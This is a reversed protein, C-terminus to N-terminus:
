SNEKENALPPLTLSLGRPIEEESHQAGSAPGTDLKSAITPMEPARINDVTIDSSRIGRGILRTARQSKYYRVI